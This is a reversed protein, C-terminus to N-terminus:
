DYKISQNSDSQQNRSGISDWLGSTGNNNNNQYHDVKQKKNKNDYRVNQSKNNDGSKKRSANTKNSSQSVSSVLNAQLPAALSLQNGHNSNPNEDLENAWICLDSINQLNCKLVNSGMFTYILGKDSSSMRDFKSNRVLMGKKFGPLREVFKLLNNRWERIKELTADEQLKPPGSACYQENSKKVRKLTDNDVRVKLFRPTRPSIHTSGRYNSNTGRKSPTFLRQTISSLIDDAKRKGLVSSMM